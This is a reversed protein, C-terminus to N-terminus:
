FYLADEEGEEQWDAIGFTGYSACLPGENEIELVRVKPSSYLELSLKQTLKIM